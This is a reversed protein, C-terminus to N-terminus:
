LSRIIITKGDRILFDFEIQKYLYSPINTPMYTYIISQNINGTAVEMIIFLRIFVCVFLIDFIIKYILEVSINKYM